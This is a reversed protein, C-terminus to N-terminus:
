RMSERSRPNGAGRLVLRCGRSHRRRAGDKHILRRSQNKSPRYAAARPPADGSPPCPRHFRGCTPGQCSLARRVTWPVVTGGPIPPARRAIPDPGSRGPWPTWRRTRRARPRWHWHRCRPSRSSAAPAARPTPQRTSVLYASTTSAHDCAVPECKPDLSKFGIDNFAHIVRRVYEPSCDLLHAIDPVAQSQAPMLVVIARGLKVPDKAARGIQQLRRGDTMTVPRVFVEPPRGM